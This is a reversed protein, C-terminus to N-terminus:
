PTAQRKSKKKTGILRNRINYALIIDHIESEERRIEELLNQLIDLKRRTSFPMSDYGSQKRIDTIGPFRKKITEHDNPYAQLIDDKFSKMLDSIIEKRKLLTGHREGLSLFDEASKPFKM